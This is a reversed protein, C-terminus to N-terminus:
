PRSARLGWIPRLLMRDRETFDSSAQMVTAEYYRILTTTEVAM